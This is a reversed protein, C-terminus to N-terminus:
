QKQPLTMKLIQKMRILLPLSSNRSYSGGSQLVASNRLSHKEENMIDENKLALASGKGPSAVCHVIECVCVCVCM